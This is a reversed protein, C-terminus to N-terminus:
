RLQPSSLFKKSEALIDRSIQTIMLDNLVEIAHKLSTIQDYSIYQLTLKFDDSEPDIM